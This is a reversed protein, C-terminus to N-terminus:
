PFYARMPACRWHASPYERKEHKRRDSQRDANHTQPPLLPMQAAQEAIMIPFM